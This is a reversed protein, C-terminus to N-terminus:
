ARKSIARELLAAFIAAYPAVWAAPWFIGKHRACFLAHAKFPHGKPGTTQRWHERFSGAARLENARCTGLYGPAILISCGLGRARLGYDLDAMTHIFAPDINGVRQIVARSMLVCNGHMTDAETVETAHPPIPRWSRTLGHLVGPAKKWAGYTFAESDPDKTSGVVIVPRDSGPHQRHLQHIAYPLLMTDDNLWLYYDFDREMAQQMALRMGGAWYLTGDGQIIEVNPVIAKACATTGDTSGDDVLFVSDSAKLQPSLAALCASTVPARNHCTLLIATRM